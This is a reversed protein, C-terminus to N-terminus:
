KTGLYKIAEDLGNRLAVLSDQSVVFRTHDYADGSLRRSEDVVISKKGDTTETVDLFYTRSGAPIRRSFTHHQEDM